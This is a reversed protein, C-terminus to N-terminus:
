ASLAVAHHKLGGTRRGPPDQPSNDEARGPRRSRRTALGRCSGSPSSPSAGYSWCSHWSTRRRVGSNWSVVAGWAGAVMVMTVAGLYGALPLGCSHLYPWQTILGGLSVGLAVRAWLGIRDGRSGTTASSVRTIRRQRESSSRAPPDVAPRGTSALQALLRDVDRAMSDQEAGRSDKPMVSPAAASMGGGPWLSVAQAAPSQRNPEGRM